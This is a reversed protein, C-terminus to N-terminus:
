AEYDAFSALTFIDFLSAIKARVKVTLQEITESMEAQKQKGTQQSLVLKKIKTADATNKAQLEAICMDQAAQAAEKKAVSKRQKDRNKRKRQVEKAVDGLANTDRNEADHM